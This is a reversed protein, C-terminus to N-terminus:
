APSAAFDLAIHYCKPAYSRIKRSQHLEVVFNKEAAVKKVFEFSPGFVDPEQGIDYFHIVGGKPKLALFATDLFDRAREPLPMLVRDAAGRLEREVIERADGLLPIVKDGVKNLRINERAYNFAAPNIDISYILAVQSHKAIVISYCGVGAFLNAVVEGPKVLSAIRMREYALRPSFYVSSLDAKFICGSERHITETKAEGAIIELDRTRFDGSVPGVQLLVTRLNRHVDLLAQGILQKKPLLQEPLKIIAIDGVIDFARVFKLEEPTLKGELAERINKLRMLIFNSLM